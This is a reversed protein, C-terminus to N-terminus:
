QAVLETSTEDQASSTVSSMSWAAENTSEGRALSERRSTTVQAEVADDHSIEEEPIVRVIEEVTSTGLALRLQAATRFSWQGSDRAIASLRDFDRQEAIARRLEAKVKLIEPVCTLQDYGEFCHECGVPLFLSPKSGAPLWHRVHKLFGPLDDVDVQMRCHQCLRRVLRQSIVGLLSNALFQRNIGYALMSQIAGVCTRAHVTALVLQGSGGARVAIEATRQDRIEGIMIVDPAHRLVAYLLQAYDVGARLNIQSQVIGPIVHEVPEELTHIKSDGRNLYRLFAYLSSTKGSGTPGAVLLLGSASDLLGKVLNLEIPEM